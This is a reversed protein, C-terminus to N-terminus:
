QLCTKPFFSCGRACGEAAGLGLFGTILSADDGPFTARNLLPTVPSLVLLFAPFYPDHSDASSPFDASFNLFNPPDNTNPNVLWSLEAVLVIPPVPITLAPCSTTTKASMTSRGFAIASASTAM